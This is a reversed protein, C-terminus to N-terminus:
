PVMFSGQIIVLFDYIFRTPNGLMMCKNKMFRTYWKNKELKNALGDGIHNGPPVEHDALLGSRVIDNAFNMCSPVRQM